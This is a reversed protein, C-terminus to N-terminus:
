MPGGCASNTNAPGATKDVPVMKLEIGPTPLGIVSTRRSEFHVLTVQPATETSGWGSTMRVRRGTEQISLQELREWIHVPLAAAAYLLVKLRAFFSKRLDRDTELYPLLADYGRPANFCITPSIERLNRVTTEILGSRTQRRRHVDDRRSRARPRFRQQRRLHSELSALGRDGATRRGPVALGTRTVPYHFLADAAHQHRSQATRYLGVHVPIQSRTRDFRPSHKGVAEPNIQAKLGSITEATVLEFKHHRIANLARDFREPHDVFILGPQVLDIISKLKVFDQSM